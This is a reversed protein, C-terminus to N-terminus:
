SKKLAAEVAAMVCGRYVNPDNPWTSAFVLNHVILEVVTARVLSPSDSQHAKVLWDGINEAWVVFDVCQSQEVLLLEVAERFAERISAYGVRFERCSVVLYKIRDGLRDLQPLDAAATTAAREDERVLPAENLGDKNKKPVEFEKELFASQVHRQLRNCRNGGGAGRHGRRRKETVRATREEHGQLL